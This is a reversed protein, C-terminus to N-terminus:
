IQSLIYLHEKLKVIELHEASKSGGMKLSPVFAFCEDIKPVGKLEVGEKYIDYLFSSNLSKEDCLAINLVFDLERTLETHDGYVSDFFYYTSKKKYILGGFATRLFIVTKNTVWKWVPFLDALDDHNLTRLFGNSFSTLKVLELFSILDKDMNKNIVIDASSIHDIPHIKLFNDYNM